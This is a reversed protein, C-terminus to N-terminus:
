VAGALNLRVYLEVDEGVAETVHGLDSRAASRLHLDSIALRLGPGFPKGNREFDFLYSEQDAAHAAFTWTEGEPREDLVLRVGRYVAAREKSDPIEPVGRQEHIIAM